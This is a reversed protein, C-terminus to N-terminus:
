TTKAHYWRTVSPWVTLCFKDYSICRKAYCAVHISVRQLFRSYTLWTKPIITCWVLFTIHSTCILWCVPLCSLVMRTANDGSHRWVRDRSDHRWRDWPSEILMSYVSSLRNGIHGWCLFATSNCPSGCSAATFKSVYLIKCCTSSSVYIYALCPLRISTFAGTVLALVFCRSNGTRKSTM